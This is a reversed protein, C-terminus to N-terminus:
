RLCSRRVRWRVKLPSWGNKKLIQIMSDAENPLTNVVHKATVIYQRDDVDITFATGFESKVQSLAVQILFTRKLVNSTVQGYSPLTMATLVVATLVVLGPVRNLNKM